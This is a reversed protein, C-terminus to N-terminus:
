WAASPLVRGTYDAERLLDAVSRLHTSLREADGSLRAGHEIVRAVAGRDFSRLGEQRTITAILRAYLLDNEANREMEDEFDAAVKFLEPFEPDLRYLLYYLLREGVLIVKVDLPIPEPELSVTSVLSLLQGLSEIAIRRAHLARKFGEWAFPQILVKHADLM